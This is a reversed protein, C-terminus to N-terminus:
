TIEEGQENGAYYDDGGEEDGVVYDGVLFEDDVEKTIKTVMKKVWWKQEYHQGVWVGAIFAVLSCIGTIM